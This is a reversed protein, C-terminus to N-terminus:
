SRDYSSHLIDLVLPFRVQEEDFRARVRSIPARLFQRLTIVRFSQLIKVQGAYLPSRMNLLESVNIKWRENEESRAILRHLQNLAYVNERNEEPSLTGKDDVVLGLRSITLSFAAVMKQHATTSNKKCSKHVLVECRTM